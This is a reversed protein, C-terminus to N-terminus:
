GPKEVKLPLIALASLLFLVAALGYLLTYGASHSGFAQNVPDILAAGLLRASASGIVSAVNALGLYRAAQDRPVIDTVLAWNASLFLGVGLGVVFAAATIVSLSPAVVLVGAGAAAIFGAAAVLPKRGIRDALWGAPVTVAVLAGGIVISLTGVYRQAQAAAMGAVDILFFVLFTTLAIFAAWFLLRNIFWWVFAPHARWDVAFAGAFAHGLARATAPDPAPQPVFGPAPRLGLWTITLALGYVAVPVSVAAVLAASGWREAGGVLLGAVQRGIVLALIDMFARLGAARGRQGPPVLDPVLALWPTQVVSAALQLVLVGAIVLGFVPALAIVYLCPAALLAGGVIYPLRRGWRSRTHDSLVGVLPQAVSAVLLGAFTTLGLARNPENPALALVQHSLVAPELTNTTLTLAFGLTTLAILRWLPVPSM